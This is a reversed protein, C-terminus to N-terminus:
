LENKQGKRSKGIARVSKKGDNELQKQQIAQHSRLYLYLVYLIFLKYLCIQFTSVNIISNSNYWYVMYM